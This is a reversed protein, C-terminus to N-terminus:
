LLSDEPGYIPLRHKMRLWRPFTIWGDDIRVFSERDLSFRALYIGSDDHVGLAEFVTRGMEIAVDCFQEGDALLFNLVFASDTWSRTAPPTICAGNRCAKSHHYEFAPTLRSMIAEINPAFTIGRKGSINLTMEGRRDRSGEDLPLSVAEMKFLGHIQADAASSHIHPNNLSEDFRGDLCVSTGIGSTFLDWRITVKDWTKM